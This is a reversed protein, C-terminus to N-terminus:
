PRAAATNTLPKLSPLALDAFHYAPEFIMKRDGSMFWLKLVGRNNDSPTAIADVHRAKSKEGLTTATGIVTASKGQRLKALAEAPVTIALLGKENKFFYPSVKMVYQGRYIDGSRLLTGITLNASGAAVPTSSPGIILTQSAIPANSAAPAVPALAVLVCAILLRGLFNGSTQKM